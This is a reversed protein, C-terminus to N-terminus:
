ASDFPGARGLTIFSTAEFSPTPPGLVIGGYKADSSFRTHDTDIALVDKYRTVSWYPGAISEPTWHLPDEKRLRAFRDWM